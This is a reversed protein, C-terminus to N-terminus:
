IVYTHTAFTDYTNITFMLETFIVLRGLSNASLSEQTMTHHLLSGYTLLYSSKYVTDLFLFDSLVDTLCIYITDALRLM